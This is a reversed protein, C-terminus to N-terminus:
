TTQPLTRLTRPRCIRNFGFNHLATPAFEFQKRATEAAALVGGVLAPTRVVRIVTFLISFGNFRRFGALALTTSVSSFTRSRM